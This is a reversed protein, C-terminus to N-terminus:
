CQLTKFARLKNRLNTCDFQDDEPDCKFGSCVRDDECEAREFDERWQDVKVRASDCYIGSCNNQMFHNYHDSSQECLNRNERLWDLFQGAEIVKVCVKHNDLANSFDRLLRGCVQPNVVTKPQIACCVKRSEKNCVM